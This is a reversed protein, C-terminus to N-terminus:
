NGGNKFPVQKFKLIFSLTYSQHIMQQSYIYLEQSLVSIETKDFWSWFCKQLELAYKVQAYDIYCIFIVYTDCIYWICIYIYINSTYWMHMLHIYIYICMVVYIYLYGSLSVSLYISIYISLSISTDYYSSGAGKIIVSDGRLFKAFNLRLYFM